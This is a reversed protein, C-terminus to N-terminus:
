GFRAYIGHQNNKSTNVTLTTSTITLNGTGITTPGSNGISIKAGDLTLSSSAKLTITNSKEVAFKDAFIQASAANSM